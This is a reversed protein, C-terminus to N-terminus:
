EDIIITGNINTFIHSSSEERAMATVVTHNKTSVVLAAENMVVLSDTIGKSKAETMKHSIMQWKSDDISINREQLRQQAHKSVQLSKTEQFVDRFSQTPQDQVKKTKPLPLPQHMHHIRPEM